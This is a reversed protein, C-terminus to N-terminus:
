FAQHGPKDRRVAADHQGNGVLRHVIAHSKRLPFHLPFRHIVGLSRCVKCASENYEIRFEIGLADSNRIGQVGLEILAEVVEFIMQEDCRM